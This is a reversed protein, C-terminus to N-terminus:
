VLCNKGTFKGRIQIDFTEGEHCPKKLPCGEIGRWESMVKGLRQVDGDSLRSHQTKAMNETESPTFITYWLDRPISQFIYDMDVQCNRVFSCRSVNHFVKQLLEKKGENSAPMPLWNRTIADKIESRDERVHDYNVQIRDAVTSTPEDSNNNVAKPLLSAMAMSNTVAPRSTASDTGAVFKTNTEDIVTPTDVAKSTSQGPKVAWSWRAESENQIGRYM